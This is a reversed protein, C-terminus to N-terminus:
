CLFLLSSEIFLDFAGEHPPNGLLLLGAGILFLIERFTQTKGDKGFDESDLGDLGLVLQMEIM